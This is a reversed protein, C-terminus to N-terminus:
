SSVLGKTHEVLEGIVFLRKSDFYGACTYLTLLEVDHSEKLIYSIDDPDTEKIATVEYTYKTGDSSRVIVSDGETLLYLYKFLHPKNHAYMVVNGGSGPLASEKWYGVANKPDDWEYNVYLMENVRARVNLRPIEMFVPEESITSTKLIRIYPIILGSLTDLQTAVMQFQVYGLILLGALMPALKAKHAHRKSRSM